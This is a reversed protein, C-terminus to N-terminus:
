ERMSQVVQATILTIGNRKAYSEIKKKYTNRIAYSGDSVSVSGLAKLGSASWKITSTTTKAVTAKKVIAKPQVKKVAVAPTTTAKKVVKAVITAKTTTAVFAPIVKTSVTPKVPKFSTNKAFVVPAGFRIFLAFALILIVIFFIKKM